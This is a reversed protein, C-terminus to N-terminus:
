AVVEEKAQQEATLRQKYSAIVQEIKGSLETYVSPDPIFRAFKVLDATNFLFRMNDLISVDKEKRGLELMTEFTTFDEANFHYSRFLFHKLIRTLEIFHLKIKGKDPLKKEMLERLRRVLEELPSLPTPPPPPTARRKKRWYWVLFWILFIVALALFVYKMIYFPNGEIEIPSKIPKIDRDEDTLVSNVTVPVSNTKKSEIVEEGKLLQVSFPGLNFEGTKFFAVSLVKEFVTYDQQKRMQTPQEALVEFQQNEPELNIKDIEETTKVIIKLTIRDGIAALNDSASISVQSEAYIVAAGVLM